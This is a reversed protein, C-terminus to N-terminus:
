PSPGRRPTSNGPLTPATGPVFPAYSSPAAAGAEPLFMPTAPRGRRSAAHASSAQTPPANPNPVLERDGSGVTKGIFLFDTESPLRLSQGVPNRAAAMAPGAENAGSGIALGVAPVAGPVAPGGSGQAPYQTGGGGPSLLGGFLGPLTGLTASFDPSPVTPVSYGGASLAMATTLLSRSELVSDALDPRFITRRKM